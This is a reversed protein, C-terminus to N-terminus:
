ARVTRELARLNKAWGDKHPSRWDVPLDRHTLEIITQQGDAILVIEVTTSGAPLTDSDIVGWTFVVGNPPDIEIYTGRVRTDGMDLAFLGGPEPALEATDGIWQVLLAPDTFYPFVVARPAAITISATVVDPQSM